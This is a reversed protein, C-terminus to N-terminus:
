KKELFHDLTAFTGAVAEPRAAYSKVNTDQDLTVQVLGALRLIQLHHLVTPARLRLERALQTPSTSGEGLSQLIRLRTPDSLAKLARVMTDSVVEGPVLSAGSPRAGFVWIDRQPNVKGIYVLPTPWYAPALVLEAFRDPQEPRLGQSLEELLDPLPLKQALEKGRSQAEELAPRIRNEEEAFFVDQYARLAKLYREGFEAPHTCWKLMVDLDTTSLPRRQRSKFHENWGTRIAERDQENWSGRSMIARFIQNLAALHADPGFALLPLREAAPVQGLTWIVAAADKPQPLTYIWHFPVHLFLESQELIEREPGTLRARMGAAWAGPLEYEDPNHLVVLSIFLDYATGLDWYLQTM